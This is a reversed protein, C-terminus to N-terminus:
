TRKKSSKGGKGRKGDKKSKTKRPKEDKPEELEDKEIFPETPQTTKKDNTDQEQIVIKAFCVNRKNQEVFGRKIKGQAELARLAQNISQRRTDLANELEVSSFAKDPNAGLIRLINEQVYERKPVEGTSEFKKIDIPM